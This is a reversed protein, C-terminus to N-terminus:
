QDFDIIPLFEAATLSAGGVLAGDVDDVAMLERVNGPKVSGGYQIRTGAGVREDYLGSVLGRLYQHVEGAQEPTATQGTGIAWVPEYAITVRRVDAQSVGELGASLQRRVVEETRGRRREELQEGICLIVDLGLELALRVKASVLADGEGFVHRRESHGLVVFSAGVDLLMAGSVEGTFAGAREACMNQAGVRVPSGALVEAVEPLYVFPPVVAVEVDDRDGVHERIATALELAGRRDLNMKWNGALYPKRM